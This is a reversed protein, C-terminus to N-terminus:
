RNDNRDCKPSISWFPVGNTACIYFVSDPDGPKNFNHQAGDFWFVTIHDYRKGNVDSEFRLRWPGNAVSHGRVYTFTGNPEVYGPNPGNFIAWGLVGADRYLTIWAKTGTMNKVVMTEASAPAAALGICLALLSLSAAIRKRIM